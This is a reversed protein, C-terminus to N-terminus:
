KPLIIVIIGLLKFVVVEETEVVHHFIEEKVCVCDQSLVDDEKVAREKIVFQSLVCDLIGGNVGVRAVFLNAGLDVFM